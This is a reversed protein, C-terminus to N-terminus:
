PMVGGPVIILDGVFIDGEGALSNFAVVEDTKAKYNKAIESLTDGLKVVHVTGTVPLIVLSQGTKLVSNKNLSNAWIITNSSIGFKQAISEITDGPIVLYDTAEKRIQLPDGFMNGLTQTTVVVPTSVGYVFNDQIIKLDPTEAVSVEDKSFFIDGSDANPANKLYQNFSIIDNGDFATLKALSSSGSFILGFLVFSMVGFYFFPNKLVGRTQGKKSKKRSYISLSTETIRFQPINGVPM